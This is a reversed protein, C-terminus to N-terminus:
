PKCGDPLTYKKNHWDKCLRQVLEKGRTCIFTMTKTDFRKDWVYHKCTLCGHSPKGRKM